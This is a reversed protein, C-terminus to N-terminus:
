TPFAAVRENLVFSYKCMAIHQETLRAKEAEPLAAFTSTELFSRLKIVKEDLEAAEKRVRDRFDGPDTALRERLRWGLLGWLQDRAHERALKRGIEADFTDHSVPGANVGVIRHGNRLVLVCFTVMSLDPPVAAPKITGTGTVTADILAKTMNATHAGDAATFYYRHAIEADLDEPKVRPATKGKAALERELETENM